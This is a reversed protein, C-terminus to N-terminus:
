KDVEEVTYKRERKKSEGERRGMRGVKNGTRWRGQREREKM